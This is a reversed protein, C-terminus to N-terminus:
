LKSVDPKQHYDFLVGPTKILGRVKKEIEGSHDDDLNILVHIHPIAKISQIITYNKWWIINKRQLGVYNVFTLNIYKEIYQKTEDDIDGIESNPDPLMPFKVWILLHLTKNSIYYPYDNVTICTDRPDAFPRPDNYKVMKVAESDPIHIDTDEPLWKLVKILLNTTIGVNQEDLSKKFARYKALQEKSRGLKDLNYSSVIEFVDNWSLPEQLSM